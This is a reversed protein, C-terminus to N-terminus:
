DPPIRPNEVSQVVLLLAVKGPISVIFCKRSRQVDIKTQKQKIQMPILNEAFLEGHIATCPGLFEHAYAVAPCM